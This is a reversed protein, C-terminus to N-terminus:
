TGLGLMKVMELVKPKPLSKTLIDAPMDSTRLHEIEIRGKAVEDRLWYFRLDLHKMRGHHEPNKRLLSRLSITLGSGRPRLSM